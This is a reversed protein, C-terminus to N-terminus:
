AAAWEVGNRPSLLSWFQSIRAFALLAANSITMKYQTLVLMDSHDYAIYYYRASRDRRQVRARLLYM